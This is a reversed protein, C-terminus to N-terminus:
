FGPPLLYSRLPRSEGRCNENTPHSENPCWKMPGNLYDMWLDHYGPFDKAFARDPRAGGWSNKTRLLLIETDDQLAAELKAADDPNSPDLTVGAELIGFEQTKAKYDELVTMHGGQHGPKGAEVLTQKNFSGRRENQGNEMANFDVDWTIVVPASAHLAEQVRKLSSRAASGGSPYRVTDWDGLAETLTTDKYTVEGGSKVAYRVPIDNPSIINTGELEGGSRLTMEGDEGFVKDLQARVEDSLGWAEDMVQRVLKGDRRAEQTKLAGSKLEQNIKNLASEQRYSMENDSDAPVFDIEKMVGRDRIISHSTWTNGGTSIEDGSFYGTLQDFWHWYTWYSQSVDLEDLEAPPADDVVPAECLAADCYESEAVHKVCIDDWENDCCYSDDECIKALCAAHDTDAPMCGAALKDGTECFQHECTSAVAGGGSQANAQLYTLNISEVWTAEAYLWCNGISQREVPTHAVDTIADEAQGVAEQDGEVGAKCGTAGVLGAFTLTLGLARLTNRKFSMNKEVEEEDNEPIV